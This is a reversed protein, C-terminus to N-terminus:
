EHLRPLLPLPDRPTGRFRVEFHLHPGTSLGTSGVNGIIMGSKVATNLEVHRVSLHGYLTEWGGEHAILVFNGYVPDYGVDRVSGSRAAYVDTGASAALDIGAHHQVEGTFPSARLGYGSTLRAKPLPFRFGTGLFFAREPPSFRAGPIFRFETWGGALRVRVTREGEASARSAAILYELDNSPNAAAFVGTLSPIVMREGRKLPRSEGIRNITALAEYPVDLRAALAMIDTDEGLVYSFLLLDPFASGTMEAKRSQAISDSLQRFSLDSSDVRRIRPYPESVQAGAAGACCFLALLATWRGLSRERLPGPSSRRM